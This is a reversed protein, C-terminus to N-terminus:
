NEGIIEKVEEDSVDYWNEYADAVAFFSGYRVDPCILADVELALKQFTRASATPVVIIIRKPNYGKITKLAAEMTVGSALGDDVLIVTKGKINSYNGSVGYYDMRKKIEEFVAQALEKVQTSSLGLQSLIQTNLIIEGDSTVAGFGAEPNQPIPIKKVIVLDLPVRLASAIEKGVVVGGNPIALVLPMKLDYETLVRALYKGAERRDKYFVM